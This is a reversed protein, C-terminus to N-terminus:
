QNAQNAITYGMEKKQNTSLHSRVASSWLLAQNRWPSPLAAWTQESRCMLVNFLLTKKLTLFVIHPPLAHNLVSIRSDWAWHTVSSLGAYQYIRHHFRGTCKKETCNGHSAIAISIDGIVHMTQDHLRFVKQGSKLDKDWSRMLHCSDANTRSPTWISQCVSLFQLM